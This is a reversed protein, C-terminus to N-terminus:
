SGYRRIRALLRTLTERVSRNPTAEVAMIALVLDEARRAGIRAVLVGAVQEVWRHSGAM